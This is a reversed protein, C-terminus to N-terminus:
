RENNYKLMFMTENSDNHFKVGTIGFGLKTKGNAEETIVTCGYEEEFQETTKGNAKYEKLVKALLSLKEMGDLVDRFPHYDDPLPVQEM